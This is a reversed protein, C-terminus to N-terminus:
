EDGTRAFAKAIACNSTCINGDVCGGFVARLDQLNRTGAIPGQANEGKTMAGQPSSPSTSPHTNICDHLRQADHESCLELV